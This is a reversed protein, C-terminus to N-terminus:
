KFSNTYRQNIINCNFILKYNSYYNFYLLLLNTKFDHIIIFAFAFSAFAFYFYIAYFANFSKITAIILCEKIPMKLLLSLKIIDKKPM